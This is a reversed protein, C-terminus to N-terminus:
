LSVSHIQGIVFPCREFRRHSIENMDDVMMQAMGYSYAVYFFMAILLLLQKMDCFRSM